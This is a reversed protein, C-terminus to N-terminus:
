RLRVAPRVHERKYRHLEYDLEVGLLLAVNSLWLWVLFIVVGALSGFTRNYSSFNAIYLTFLLSGATWLAIALMSGATVPRFRRDEPNTAVNYLTALLAAMLLLMLPWRLLGSGILSSDGLGLARRLVDALPGTVVVVMGIGTLMLLLLLTLGIRLPIVQYFRRQERVGWVVNSARMFAGVYSSASYLAVVLSIALAAGATAGNGQVNEIAAILLDRVPGPAMGRFNDVLGATASQGILGLTSVFVVLAPFIS